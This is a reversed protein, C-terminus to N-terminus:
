YALRVSQKLYNHIFLSGIIEFFQYLKTHLFQESSSWVIRDHGPRLELDPHAESYSERKSATVM